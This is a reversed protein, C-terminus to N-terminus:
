PAIWEPEDPLVTADTVPYITLISVEPLTYGGSCGGGYPTWTCITPLATAPSYFERSRNWSGDPLRPGDCLTRTTGRGEYLWYQSVCGPRAHAESTTGTALIGGVCVAAVVRAIM